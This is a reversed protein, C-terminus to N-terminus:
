SLRTQPKILTIYHLEQFIKHNSKLQVGLDSLLIVQYKHHLYVLRHHNGTGFQRNTALRSKLKFLTSCRVNFSGAKFSSGSLATGCPLYLKIFAQNAKRANKRIFSSWKRAHLL